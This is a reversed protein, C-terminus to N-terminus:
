HLPFAKEAEGAVAAVMEAVALVTLVLAVVSVEAALVAVARPEAEFGESMDVEREVIEMDDVATVAPAVM